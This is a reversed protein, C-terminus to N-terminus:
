RGSEWWRLHSMERVVNTGCHVEGMNAHYLDWDDAFFVEIGLPEFKQELDKKFPDVGDIVPGFPDAVVLVGDVHLLNVTGPQYSIHQGWMEEYLGPMTTVDEPELGTTAALKEFERDIVAQSYESAAMLDANALVQDITAQAPYERETEYDYVYKDVFMPEDGHGAAQLELLMERSEAADAVITRFGKPGPDHM